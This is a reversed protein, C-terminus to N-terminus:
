TNDARIDINKSTLLAKHYTLHHVIDNQTGQPRLIQRGIALHKVENLM